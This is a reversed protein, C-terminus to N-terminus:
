TVNLTSKSNLTAITTCITTIIKAMSTTKTTFLDNKIAKKKDTM